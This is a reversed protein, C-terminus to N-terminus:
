SASPHPSFITMKHNSYDLHQFLQDFLLNLVFFLPVLIPKVIWKSLKM